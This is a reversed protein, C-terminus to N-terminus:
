PESRRDNDPVVGLTKTWEVAQDHAALASERSPTRDIYDDSSYNGPEFFVMTEFILPAGSGLPIGMDFGIWVTSVFAKDGGPLEVESQAIIHEGSQRAEEFLRGWRLTGIPMGDFDYFIKSDSGDRRHKDCTM